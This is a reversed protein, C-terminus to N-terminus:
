VDDYTLYWIEFIWELSVYLISYVCPVRLLFYIYIIKRRYTDYQWNISFNILLNKTWAIPATAWNSLFVLLFQIFECFFIRFQSIHSKLNKNLACSHIKVNEFFHLIFTTIQHNFESKVFINKCKFKDYLLKGFFFFM